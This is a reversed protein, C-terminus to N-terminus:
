WNKVDSHWVPIPSIGTLEKLREFNHKSQESDGIVDLNFFGYICDRYKNIFSAYEEVTIPEFKKGKQLKQYLTFAGSDLLVKLDNEKLRQMWKDVKKKKRLYFFSNLIFHGNNNVVANFGIRCPRDMGSFFHRVGRITIRLLDSVTKSIKSIDMLILQLLGMLASNFNSFSQLDKRSATRKYLMYSIARRLKTRSLSNPSSSTEKTNFYIVRDTIKNIENVHGKGTLYISGNKVKRFFSREIMNAKVDFKNMKSEELIFTSLM